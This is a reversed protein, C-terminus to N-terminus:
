AALTTTSATINAAKTPAVIPRIVIRDKKAIGAPGARTTSGSGSRPSTANAM